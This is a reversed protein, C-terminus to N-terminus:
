KPSAVLVAGHQVVLHGGPCFAANAVDLTRACVASLKGKECGPQCTVAEEDRSV